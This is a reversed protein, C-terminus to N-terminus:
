VRDNQKHLRFIFLVIDIPCVTCDCDRNENTDAVVVITNHYKQPNMKATTKAGNHETAYAM